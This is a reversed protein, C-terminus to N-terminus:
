QQGIKGRAKRIEQALMPGLKEVFRITLHSADHYVLENDKVGQCVDEDCIRDDMDILATGPPLSYQNDDGPLVEDRERYCPKARPLVSFACEPANFGMSPTDRIALVKIGAQNLRAFAQRYGDPVYERVGELRPGGKDHDFEVQTGVAFVFNPRTKLLQQLVARNWQACPSDDDQPHISLNCAGKTSVRIQLDMQRAAEMLAPVWHSTHSSGVVQIVGSKGQENFVCTQVDTQALNRQCGKNYVVEDFSGSIKVNDLHDMRKTLSYYADTFPQEYVRILTAALGSFILVSGMCAAVTRLNHSPRNRIYSAFKESCYSLFIALAIILVGHVPTPMQQAIQWYICYLPWHWLYVGFGLGGLWVLYKQSLLRNVLSREHGGFLMILAAGGVPWLTAPGPFTFLKAAIFGCSVVLFLGLVDLGPIYKVGKSYIVAAIAGLTFEWYRSLPEFYALDADARVLYAGWLFSALTIPVLVWLMMAEIAKIDRPNKRNLAQVLKVIIIWSAYVQGILSVAWFLMLPNLNVGRQTYVGSQAMLYFNELYLASFIVHRLYERWSDVLYTSFIVLTCFGLVLSAEPWTRIAFKKVHNWGDFPIGKESARIFNLALFYGSIVFFVDVGGAVGGEWIHFSAIIMATVARLGQIESRYARPTSM